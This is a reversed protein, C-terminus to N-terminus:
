CGTRFFSGALKVLTGKTAMSSLFLNKDIVNDHMYLDLYLDPKGDRDIDGIWELVGLYNGEGDPIANLIQSRDDSELLLAMIKKGKLDLGSRASLSYSKGGITFDKKFGPRISRDEASDADRDFFFLTTVPGPPPPTGGKIMFLPKKGSMVSVSKGTVEGPGNGDIISDRVRKIRVTAPKLNFTLDDGFLGTWTEGNRADIEEGHYGGGTEVLRFPFEVPRSSSKREAETDIQFIEVPTESRDAPTETKSTPNASPGSPIEALYYESPTLLYGIIFTAILLLPAFKNFKM